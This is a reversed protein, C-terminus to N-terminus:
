QNFKKKKFRSYNQTLKSVLDKAYKTPMSNSSYIADILFLLEGDEYDREGLYLGKKGCKVIDYGHESLIDISSAITKREIEIGFGSYLKEGIDAYTLTHNEDTNEQLIKLIYLLSSKKESAM